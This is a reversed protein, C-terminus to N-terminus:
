IKISKGFFTNLIEKNDDLNKIYLEEQEKSTLELYQQIEEFVSMVRFSFVMKNSIDKNEEYIKKIIFEKFQEDYKLKIIIEEIDKCLLLQNRTLYYINPIM